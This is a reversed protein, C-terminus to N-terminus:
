TLVAELDRLRRYPNVAVGPHAHATAAPVVVRSAFRCAGVGLVVQHRVFVPEVPAVDLADAYGSAAGQYPGPRLNWAWGPVETAWWGPLRGVGHVDAHNASATM